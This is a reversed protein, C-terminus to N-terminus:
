SGHLLRWTDCVNYVSNLNLDLEEQRLLSEASTVYRQSNHSPSCGKACVMSEPVFWMVRVRRVDGGSFLFEDMYVVIAGLEVDGM